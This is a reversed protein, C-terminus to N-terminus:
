IYTIIETDIKPVLQEKIKAKSPIGDFFIYSNTYKLDSKIHYESLEIIFTIVNETIIDIIISEDNYNNNTIFLNIININYNILGEKINNYDTTYIKIFYNKYKTLIYDIILKYNNNSIYKDTM